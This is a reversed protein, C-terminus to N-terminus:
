ITVDGVHVTQKIPWHMSPMVTKSYIELREEFNCLVHWLLTYVFFIHNNPLIILCAANSTVSIDCLSWFKLIMGRLIVFSGRCTIELLTANQFSYVWVLRHLRRKLKSLGFRPRTACDTVHRAVSAHRVASGPTALEIRARYWVKMSISWSIIEVTM